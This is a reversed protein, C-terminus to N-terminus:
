GQLAYVVHKMGRLVCVKLDLTEKELWMREDLALHLSELVEENTREKIPESFVVDCHHDDIEASSILTTNVTITNYDDLHMTALKSTPTTM